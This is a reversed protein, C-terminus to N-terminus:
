GRRAGPARPKSAKAKPEPEPMPPYTELLQELTFRGVPARKADGEPKGWYRLHFVVESKSDDKWESNLLPREFGQNVLAHRIGELQPRVEKEQAMLERDTIVPGKGRGWERLQEVSYWGASNTYQDTPNLWFMIESEQSDAWRPSLAFWQKGQKRLEKDLGLKEVAKLLREQRQDKALVLDAIAEPVASARMFVLGRANPFYGVESLSNGFAIDRDEFSQKIQRLRLVEDAGKVHILAGSSDWAGALTENKGFGFFAQHDLFAKRAQPNKSLDAASDAYRADGILLAAAPTGDALLYEQYALTTPARTQVRDKLGAKYQSPVGLTGRLESVGMEHETCYNSELAVGQVQGSDSLLWSVGGSRRM